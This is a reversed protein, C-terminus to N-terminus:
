IVLFINKRVFCNCHLHPYQTHKGCFQNTINSKLPGCLHLVVAICIKEQIAICCFKPTINNYNYQM